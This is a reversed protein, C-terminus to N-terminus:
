RRERIVGYGQVVGTPDLIVWVKGGHQAALEEPVDIIKVASDTSTLIYMGGETLELVGVVPKQGAIELIEYESVVIRTGSYTGTARVEAGTLRILEDRYEGRVEVGARTMGEPEILV